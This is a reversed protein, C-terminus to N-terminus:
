SFDQSVFLAFLVLTTNELCDLQRPRRVTLSVPYRLPRWCVTHPSPSVCRAWFTFAALKHSTSACKYIYIGGLKAPGRYHPVSRSILLLYKLMLASNHATAHLGCSVEYSLVKEQEIQSRKARTGIAPKPLWIPHRMKTIFLSRHVRDFVTSIAITGWM